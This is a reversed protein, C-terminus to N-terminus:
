AHAILAALAMMVSTRCTTLAYKSVAAAGSPRGMM